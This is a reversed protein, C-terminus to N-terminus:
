NNPKPSFMAQLEEKISRLPTSALRTLDPSVYTMDALSLMQFVPNSLDPDTRLVVSRGIVESLSRALDEMNWTESATLEYTRSEHGEGTLLTVAAAALDERAATNFAWEGLPRRLEGSEAAERVGLFKLIDMYYANRLLTYPIQSDKIVQETQLHLRHLPLKGQEPRTISTYLLHKVGAKQAAEIAHLHQELRVDDNQHPSSVLLLKSAGYFSAELSAPEDYDGYRVEVGHASWERAAEPRRVSAVINHAPEVQLLKRLIHQGLHGTAGTVIIKM